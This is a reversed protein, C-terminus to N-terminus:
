WRTASTSPWMTSLSTTYNVTSSTGPGHDSNLAPAVGIMPLRQRRGSQPEWLLDGGAM